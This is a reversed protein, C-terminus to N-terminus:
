IHILSLFAITPDDDPRWNCRIDVLLHEHVLTTGLEAAPIQGLVTQVTERGPAPATGVAQTM